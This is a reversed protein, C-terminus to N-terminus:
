YGLIIRQKIAVFADKSVTFIVTNDNAFGYVLVTNQNKDKLERLPNVVSQFNEFNRTENETNNELHLINGLDTYMTREKELFFKESNNFDKVSLVIFPYSINEKTYAGYFYEGNSITDIGDIFRKDVIPNLQNFKLIDNNDKVVFQTFGDSLKFSQTRFKDLDNQKPIQLSYKIDFNITDKKINNLTNKQNNENVINTFIKPFIFILVAVLVVLITINRFFSIQRRKNSVVQIDALMIAEQDPVHPNDVVEGSVLRRDKPFSHLIADVAKPNSETKVEEKVEEPM